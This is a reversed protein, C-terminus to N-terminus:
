GASRRARGPAHNSLADEQQRASDEGGSGLAQALSVLLQEDMPSPQHARHAYDWEAPATAQRSSSRSQLLDLLAELAANSIELEGVEPEGQLGIGAKSFAPDGSVEPGAWLPPEFRELGTGGELTVTLLQLPRRVLVQELVGEVGPAVVLATRDYAIQGPAVDLLAQAQSQPVETAEEVPEGSPGPVQMM